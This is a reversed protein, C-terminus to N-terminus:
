VSFLIVIIGLLLCYVSFYKFKQAILLEFVIKIAVLGSVFACIFGTVYFGADVGNNVNLELTQLVSAGLIVPVALLFSFECAEKRKLGSTAGAFITAGSRSIGPIMAFMQAVGITVARTFNVKGVRGKVKDTVYNMIGTIVLALGVVLTSSFLSVLADGFIVGVVGAPITGVILLTLYKRTLKIISRRFYVIISFATGVHLIVDFLIGPQAFDPILNQVIVLHGSSSIPLFETLGQLIGLIIASYASM